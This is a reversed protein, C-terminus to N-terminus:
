QWRGSPLPRGSFALKAPPNECDIPGPWPLGNTLPDYLDRFVHLLEFVSVRTGAKNGINWNACDLGPLLQNATTAHVLGDRTATAVSCVQFAGPINRADGTTRGTVDHPLQKVDL